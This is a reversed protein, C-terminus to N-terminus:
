ELAYKAAFARLAGHFCAMPPRVMGAGIISHGPDKHAIATDIIPLVGSQAVKRIDIGVATGEFDLAPIAFDPSLGTTIERMERSYNLAEEPTGGVLSLLGPAGGLAFGGWGVTETIASDGMDFGGDGEGYGPLYLGDIAPAPATFWQGDLGSVNIGFEYGNRAMATVVTSYEIGRAADAASKASAMALGLFLLDHGSIYSLTSILDKTPVGAEIMPVGMAGAFISSAANPRNHLEDGMQLAKAIIPKLSLGGMHRVGRGLSPAWVDRWMRLGDISGASHNGFQQEDEVLRCYARNGLTRNEVVYVPLSKSITGAMPGVADHHHNPDFRIGGKSLIDEAGQIDDAWGEFITMAIVAGKQAGSMHEWDVPPGSHLVMRDELGPVVEGAPVIDVLVPDASVIRSFAESNADEIKQKINIAHVGILGSPLGAATRGVDRDAYGM